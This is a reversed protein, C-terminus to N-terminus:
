QNKIRSKIRPDIVVYILDVLLNVVSIIIAVYIVCALIVPTDPLFQKEVIYNGIGKITFVKEIVASGGLMSGFQLGILTIIPVLANGLAHKLIVTSKKLGKAYATTIYDQNVIELMSSRTMRTLSAALYTGAVISPMILTKMSGVVYTAPLWGLNISFTLILMMGFWFEPISIGVLALFMFIYDGASYQRVASLIGIPISVLVALILAFVTMELTVPFKRMISVAVDENGSFSKGLDFTALKRFQSFLQTLYSQDLGYTRNFEEIQSETATDGLINVAPDMPSAYLITFVVFVVGFTVFLMMVLREFTYKVFPNVCLLLLVYMPFSTIVSLALLLNNHFVPSLRDLFGRTKEVEGQDVMKSRRRNYEEELAQAQQRQLEKQFGSGEEDRSFYAYKNHVRNLVGGRITDATGDAEMEEFIRSRLSQNGSRNRIRDAMFLCFAVLFTPLGLVVLALAYLPKDFLRRLLSEMKEKM